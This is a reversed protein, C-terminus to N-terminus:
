RGLADAFRAIEEAHEDYHVFSQEAFWHAAAATPEETLWSWAAILRARAALSREMVEAASMTKAEAAIEANMRDGLAEDAEFPDVFSGDMLSSLYPAIDGAWYACHWVLDRASWGPLVGELTQQESTLRAYRALLGDWADAERAVHAERIGM